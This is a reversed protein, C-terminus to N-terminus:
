FSRRRTTWTPHEQVTEWPSTTGRRQIRTGLTKITSEHTQIRRVPFYQAPKPCTLVQSFGSRVGGKKQSLPYPPYGHARDGYKRNRPLCGRRHFLFFDPFFTMISAERNKSRTRFGCCFTFIRPPKKDRNEFKCVKQNSFCAAALRPLGASRAFGRGSRSPRGRAANVFAPDAFLRSEQQQRRSRWAM